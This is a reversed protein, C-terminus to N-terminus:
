SRKDLNGMNKPAPNIRRRPPNEPGEYEETDIQIDEETEPATETDMYVMNADGWDESINSFQDFSFCKGESISNNIEKKLKELKDAEEKMAKEVNPDIDVSKKIKGTVDKWNKNENVKKGKNYVSKLIKESEEKAKAPNAIYLPHAKLVIELAKKNTEKFTDWDTHYDVFGKGLETWLKKSTDVYWNAGTKATKILKDTNEKGIVAEAADRYAKKLWDFQENVSEGIFSNFSPIASENTEEENEYEGVEVTAIGTLYPDRYTFPKEGEQKYVLDHTMAKYTSNYHPNKFVPDRKVVRRYDKLKNSESTKKGNEDRDYILSDNGGFGPKKLDMYQDFNYVDRRHVDFLDM